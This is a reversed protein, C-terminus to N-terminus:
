LVAASSTPSVQADYISIFKKFFFNFRFFVFCILILFAVIKKRVNLGFLKFGTKVWSVMHVCSDKFQAWWVNVIKPDRIFAWSKQGTWKISYLIGQILKEGALWSYKVTFDKLKTLVQFLKEKSFLRVPPKKKKRKLPKGTSSGPGPSGSGPGGPGGPGAIGTGSGGGGGMNNTPSHSSGGDSPHREGFTPGSASLSSASASSSSSVNVNNKLSFDKIEKVAAREAEVAAANADETVTSNSISGAVANVPVSTSSSSGGAVSSGMGPKIETEGFAQSGFAQPDLGISVALDPPIKSKDFVDDSPSPSKRRNKPKTCREPFMSNSSSSSTKDTSTVKSSGPSNVPFSSSPPSALAPPKRYIDGAYEDGVVGHHSSWYNPPDGTTSFHRLTLSNLSSLSLSRNLGLTKASAGHPQFLVSTLGSARLKLASPTKTKPTPISFKLLSTATSTAFARPAVARATALNTATPLARSSVARTLAPMSNKSLQTLGLPDGM